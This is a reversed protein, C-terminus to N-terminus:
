NPLSLVADRWSNVRGSLGDLWQSTSLYGYLSGGADLQATVENFSTKEASVIAPRSPPTPATNQAERKGCGNAALLLLFVVLQSKAAHPNRSHNMPIRKPRYNHRRGTRFAMSNTHPCAANSVPCPQNLCKAFPARVAQGRTEIIESFCRASLATRAGQILRPARPERGRVSSDMRIGRRRRKC